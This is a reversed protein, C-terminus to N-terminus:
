KGVARRSEGSGGAHRRDTELGNEAVASGEMTETYHLVMREKEGAEADLFWLMAAGVIDEVPGLRRSRCYEGFRKKLDAEINYGGPIKAM